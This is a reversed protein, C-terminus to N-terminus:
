QGRVESISATNAWRCVADIDDQSLRAASHLLLYSTLPMERRQAERCISDLRKRTLDPPDNTGSPLWDSFNMHRRGGNVHNVLFWSVPALNSYWPWRTENSPCDYCARRFTADVSSPVSLIAQATQTQNIPPNTRAPRILQIAALGAIGLLVGRFLPSL